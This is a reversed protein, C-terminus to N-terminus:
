LWFLSSNSVIMVAFKSSFSGYNAYEMLSVERCEFKSHCKRVELVELVELVESDSHAGIHVSSHAPLTM